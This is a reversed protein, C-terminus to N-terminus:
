IDFRLRQRHNKLSDRIVRMAVREDELQRRYSDRLLAPTSAHRERLNAISLIFASAHRRALIFAIRFQGDRSFIFGSRIFNSALAGRASIQAVDAPPPSRRAFDAASCFGARGPLPTLDIRQSL